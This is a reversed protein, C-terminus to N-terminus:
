EHAHGEDPGPLFRDRPAPMPLFQGFAPAHPDHCSVCHNRERPGRQLDWHGRMGGHSGHDYDRTQPGHCQRCLQMAESLPFSTGDALHLLSRNEADHCSGCSVDGHTVVLGAHPGGIGEASRPLAPNDRVGEGHCTACPVVGTTGNENHVVLGQLVAPQAIVVPYDPSNDERRSESPAPTEPAATCASLAVVLACSWHALSNSYAM